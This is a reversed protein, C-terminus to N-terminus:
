RAPRPSCRTPHRRRGAAGLRRHRLPEARHDRQAGADHRGDGANQAQVRACSNGHHAGEARGERACRARRRRHALRVIGALRGSRACRAVARQRVAAACAGRARGARRSRDGCAALDRQASSQHAANRRGCACRDEYRRGRACARRDRADSRGCPRARSVRRRDAPHCARHLASRAVQDRRRRRRTARGRLSHEQLQGAPTWGVRQADARRARASFATFGTGGRRQVARRCSADGRRGTRPTRVVELEPPPADGSAIAQLTTGTRLINGRVAQHACEAVAADSLADIADDLLALEKECRQLRALMDPTPFGFGLRSLRQLAKPLELGDVVNNAAISEAPQTGPANVPRLPAIARFEDIDADHGLEHLKREFLYGLVAGLPQGQRVGDLLSRRSGCAGRHCIWRSCTRRM